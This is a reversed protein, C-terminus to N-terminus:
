SRTPTRPAKYGLVGGRGKEIVKTQFQPLFGSTESQGEEDDKFLDLLNIGFKRGAMEAFSAPLKYRSATM